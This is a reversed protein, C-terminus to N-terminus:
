KTRRQNVNTNLQNKCLTIETKEKREEEINKEKKKGKKKKKKGGGGGYAREAQRTPEDSNRRALAVLGIVHFPIM